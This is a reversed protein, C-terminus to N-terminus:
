LAGLDATVKFNITAWTSTRLQIAAEVWTLEGLRLCPKM